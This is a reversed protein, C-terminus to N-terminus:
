NLFRRRIGALGVLGLGFLLATAPEPVQTEGYIRVGFTFDSYSRWTGGQNVAYASLPSPVTYPLAGYYSDPVELALWYTGASLDWNLGSPGFWGPVFNLNSMDVNIPLTTSNIPTSGPAAGADRYIAYTLHGSHGTSVLWVDIDTIKFSNTLTFKGAWWQGSSLDLAGGSSPGPGTDIILGAYANPITIMFVAVFILYKSYRRVIRGGKKIITINKESSANHSM